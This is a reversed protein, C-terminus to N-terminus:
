GRAARNCRFADRMKQGINSAREELEDFQHPSRIGTRVDRLLKDFETLQDDLLEAITPRAPRRITRLTGNAM